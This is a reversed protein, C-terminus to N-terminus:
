SWDHRDFTRRVSDGNSGIYSKKPNLLISKDRFRQLVIKLVDIFENESNAMVLLDDIYIECINYLLELLIEEQM